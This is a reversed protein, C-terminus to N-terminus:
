LGGRAEDVLYNDRLDGLKGCLGLMRGTVFKRDFESYPSCLARGAKTSECGRRAHHLDQNRTVIKRRIMLNVDFALCIAEELWYSIKETLDKVSVFM